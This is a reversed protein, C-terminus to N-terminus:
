SNLLTKKAISFNPYRFTMVIHLMHTECCKSAMEALPINSMVDCRLIEGKWRSSVSNWCRKAASSNKSRYLTGNTAEEPSTTSGLLCACCVGCQSSLFGPPQRALLMLFCALGLSTSPGYKGFRQM